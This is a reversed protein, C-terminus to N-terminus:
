LGLFAMLLPLADMAMSSWPNFSDHLFTSAQCWFSLPWLHFHLLLGWFKPSSLIMPHAGLVAPASSHFLSSGLLCSTHAAFPSDLLSQLGIPSPKMM